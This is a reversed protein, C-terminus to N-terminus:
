FRKEFYSLIFARKFQQGEEELWGEYNTRKEHTFWIVWMQNEFIQEKDFAFGKSPEDFLGDSM